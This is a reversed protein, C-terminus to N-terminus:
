IAINKLSLGWFALWRNVATDLTSLFFPHLFDRALCFADPSKKKPHNQLLFEILLCGELDGGANRM